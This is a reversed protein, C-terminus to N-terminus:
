RRRVPLSRLHRPRSREIRQRRSESQSATSSHLRSRRHDGRQRYRLGALSGLDSAIRFVSGIARRPTDILRAHRPTTAALANSTTAAHVLSKSAKSKGASAPLPADLAVPPALLVPPAPPAAPAQPPCVVAHLPAQTSVSVSGFFQPAHPDTQAAPRLQSFPSQPHECADCHPPSPASQRLSRQRQSPSPQRSPSVQLPLPLM